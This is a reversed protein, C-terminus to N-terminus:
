LISAIFEFSVFSFKSFSVKQAEGPLRFGSLFFRIAEDFDMKEFDLLNTYEHLVKLCFGDQYEAERGLFEGIQTKDIKSGDNGNKLLYRAVDVPDDADIHGCEGAYAIGKLPSRNFRLIVELQEEKYKKKSDYIQVLTNQKKEEEASPNTAINETGDIRLNSLDDEIHDTSADFPTVISAHLSVLVQRLARMADLRLQRIAQRLFTKRKEAGVGVIAELETSSVDGGTTLTNEDVKAVKGLTNVIRHFLDVASLDCDYNLFIEALTDPDSCIEEFLTVVLSKHEMTSNSSDLIVFFVNTVFAEIETKLHSRFHRILPVFIRLSLGVVSTINSTSNKLLSVCLYHRMAFQFPQSAALHNAFISSSSLQNSSNLTRSTQYDLSLIYLILELALIKSELAPNQSLPSIASTSLIPDNLLKASTIAKPRSKQFPSSANSSSSEQAIVQTSDSEKPNTAVNSVTNKVSLQENTSWTVGGENANSVRRTAFRTNRNNRTTGNTNVADPVVKMSLKCLSRLVLFADRHDPTPFTMGGHTHKDDLEKDEGDELISLNVDNTISIAKTNTDNQLISKTNAQEMRVFVSAVLQQLAARATTKNSASGTKLFVHYCVRITQLLHTGRLMAEGESTIKPGYNSLTMDNKGEDNELLNICVGDMVRCGTTLLFKLAALETKEDSLESLFVSEALVNVARVPDPTPLIQTSSTLNKASQSNNNPLIIYFHDLCGHAVLNQASDICLYLLPATIWNKLSNAESVPSMLDLHTRSHAWTSVLHVFCSLAQRPKLDPHEDDDLSSVLQSYAQLCPDTNGNGTSTGFFRSFISNPKRVSHPMMIVAKETFKTLIRFLATPNSVPLSTLAHDTCFNPSQDMVPQTSTLPPIIKLAKVPPLSTPPPANEGTGSESADVVQTKEVDKDAKVTEVVEGEKTIGSASVEGASKTPDSDATPNVEDVQKNEAANPHGNPENNGMDEVKATPVKIESDSKVGNIANEQRQNQASIGISEVSETELDIEEM